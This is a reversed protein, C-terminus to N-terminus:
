NLLLYLKKKKKKIMAKLLKMRIKHSHAKQVKVKLKKKLESEDPKKFKPNERLVALETKIRLFNHSVILYIIMIKLKPYVKIQCPYKFIKPDTGKKLKCLSQYLNLAISNNISMEYLDNEDMEEEHFSKILEDPSKQNYDINFDYEQVQEKDASQQLYSDYNSVETPGGLM